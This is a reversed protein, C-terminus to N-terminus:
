GLRAASPQTGWAADYRPRLCVVRDSAPAGPSTCRPYSASPPIVGTRYDWTVVCSRETTDDMDVLALVPLDGIWGLLSSYEVKQESLPLFGIVYGNSSDVAAVGHHTGMLADLADDGTPMWDTQMSNGRQSIGVAVGRRVLPPSNFSASNNAPSAVDRGGSWHMAADRYHQKRVGGGWDLASGDPLFRTRWVHEGEDLSGSMLDVVAGGGSGDILVHGDDKWGALVGYGPVDYRRSTGTTLDVVVLVGHQALALRTGGADLSTSTLIPRRSARVPFTSPSLGDVVRWRGDQGLVYPLHDDKPLDIAMAAHRVPAESLPVANPSPGIAEAAALADWDPRSIVPSVPGDLGAGM